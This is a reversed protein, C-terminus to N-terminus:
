VSKKIQWEISVNVAAHDSYVVDVEDMIVAGVVCAIGEIYICVCLREICLGTAGSLGKWMCNMIRLGFDGALQKLLRGNGNECRDLEWIHANVDGEFLIKLGEFKDNNVVSKIM